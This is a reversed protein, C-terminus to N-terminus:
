FYPRKEKRSYILELLNDPYPVESEHEALWKKVNEKVSPEYLNYCPIGLFMAIQIATNTGGKFKGKRKGDPEAYFYVAQVPHKLTHGQIQFVNRTHLAVGGPKLGWFGGRAREAIHQAKGWTDQFQTADIFGLAIDEYRGDYGNRSLYIRPQTTFFNPSLRAGVYFAYDAHPADGSALSLRKDTLTRGLRAM